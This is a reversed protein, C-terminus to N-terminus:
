HSLSQISNNVAQAFQDPKLGFKFIGAWKGQPNILLVSTTHQLQYNSAETDRTSFVGLQSQLKRLEVTKGTAGIFNTNFSRTYKLLTEVNDREPDLSILVVQLNPYVTHLQDYAKSMMALTTPCINSCHTFGFFLLTWHQYFDKLTFPNGEASVLDFQKIDRSAPFILGVDPNLALSTSQKHSVRFVFTSTMVAACLFVLFFIITNTSFRTSTQM